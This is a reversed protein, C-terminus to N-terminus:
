TTTVLGVFKSPIEPGSSPGVSKSKTDGAVMERRGGGGEGKGELKETSPTM